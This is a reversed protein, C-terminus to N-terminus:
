KVRFIRSLLKYIRKTTKYLRTNYNRVLGSLLSDEIDTYDSGKVIKTGSSFGYFPSQLCQDLEKPMATSMRFKLLFSNDHLLFIRDSSYVHRNYLYHIIIAENLYKVGHKLQCNYKDELMCVGHGMYYNAKAFSPQDMKVNQKVGEKWIEHWRDFFASSFPSGDAFIVGTNFYYKEDEIPWALLEGQKICLQRYPNDMFICHTDPVAGIHGDFRFDSEKILGYIITDCDIFLFPGDFYRSMSTKLYRSSRMPCDCYKEPIKAVVIDTVLDSINRTYKSINKQTTVDTLIEVPLTPNHHRLSLLSIYIQDLYYCDSKSILVYVIKFKNQEKPFAM